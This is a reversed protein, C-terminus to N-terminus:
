AGGGRKDLRFHDVYSGCADSFSSTARGGDAPSAALDGLWVRHEVGLADQLGDPEVARVTVEIPGSGPRSIEGAPWFAGRGAGDLYMGDLTPPLEAVVEGEVVVELPAQSHYQLSLQDGEVVRLTATAEGPAAFAREQGGTADEV